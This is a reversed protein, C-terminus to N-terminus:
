FLVLFKFIILICCCFCFQFNVKKYEESFYKKFKEYKEKFIEDIINGKDDMLSAKNIIKAKLELLLKKFKRLSKM